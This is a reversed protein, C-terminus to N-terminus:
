ATVHEFLSSLNEECSVQHFHLINHIIHDLSHIINFHTIKIDRKENMISLIM